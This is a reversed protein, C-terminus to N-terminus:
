NRDTTIEEPVVPTESVSTESTETPAEGEEPEATEVPKLRDYAKRLETLDELLSDRESELKLFDNELNSYNEKLTENEFYEFVGFGTGALAILLFLVTLVAFWVSSKKPPTTPVPRNAELKALKAAEEARKRAEIEARTEAYTNGVVNKMPPHRSNTNNLHLFEPTEKSESAM